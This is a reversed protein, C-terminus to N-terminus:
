GGPVPVRVAHATPATTGDATAILLHRGTGAPRLAYRGHADTYAVDAQTGYPDILTVPTHPLPHGEPGRLQGRILRDDAPLPLGDGLAARLRRFADRADPTAWDAPLPDGSRPPTGHEAAEALGHLARAASDRETTSLPRAALHFGLEQLALFSPWLALAAQSPRLDALAQRFANGTNQLATLVTRRRIYEAHPGSAEATLARVATALRARLLAADPRRWLAPVTLVAVACGLATTLLRDDLLPLYPGSGSYSLPLVGPTLVVMALASNKALFPQALGVLAAALLVVVAEAPRLALVAATAGLGVLTGLCRQVARNVTGVGDSALLVSGAAIMAWGPETLGSLHTLVGAALVAGGARTAHRWAFSRRRLGAALATRLSPYRACDAPRHGAPATTRFSRRADALARHLRATADTPTRHRSAPPPDPDPGEDPAPGRGRRAQQELRQATTSATAHWADLATRGTTHPLAGAAAVASAAYRCLDALRQWEGSRRMAETAGRRVTQWAADLDTVATHRAAEARESGTAAILAALSRYARAVARHEAARGVALTEALAILWGAAAGAAAWGLLAPLQGTTVPTAGCLSYALLYLFGGPPAARLVLCLYYCGATLAAGTGIVAWPSAHVASLTFGAMAALVLAVGTVPTLRRRHAAPTRQELMVNWSGVFAALGATLGAAWVGCLFVAAGSGAVLLAQGWLWPGPNLALVGRLSFRATPPTQIGPRARVPLSIM